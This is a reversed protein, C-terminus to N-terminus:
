PYRSTRMARGPRRRLRPAPHIIVLKGGWDYRPKQFGSVGAASLRLRVHWNQKQGDACIVCGAWM